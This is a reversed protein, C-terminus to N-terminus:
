STSRQQKRVSKEFSEEYVVVSNRGQRKAQYLATDARQVLPDVSLDSETVSSVGISLSVTFQHGSLKTDIESVLRRIREAMEAAVLETTDPLFVGFEEGGLRVFIDKPRITDHVVGSVCKLTWDGTAHGFRDNISKFLDLDMVLVSFQQEKAQAHIFENEARNQGAGRNLAKTLADYQAQKRFQNRQVWAAVLMLMLLAAAGAFVTSFMYSASKQQNLLERQKIFLEHDQMLKDLERTKEAIEFRAMQYANQKLKQEDLVQISLAHAIVRHQYAQQFDGRKSAIMSIVEHARVKPKKYFAENPLNAVVQAYKYAEDFQGLYYQVESLYGYNDYIEINFNVGEYRSLSDLLGPLAQQYKGQKFLVAARGKIAMAEILPLQYQKCYQEADSFFTLAEPYYNLYLNGVGRYLKGYCEHKVDQGNNLKLMKDATTLLEDYAELQLYVNSLRIYSQVKISDDSNMEIRKLNEQLLLFAQQYDELGISATTKYNYIRTLLTEDPNLKLARNLNEIAKSFDGVYLDQISVLTFFLAQHEIPIQQQVQQLKQLQNIAEGGGSSLALDLNDLEKKFDINAKGWSPYAFALLLIFFSARFM